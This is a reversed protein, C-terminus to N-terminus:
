AAGGLIRRVIERDSFPRRCGRIEQCTEHGKGAIVVLDRPEAEAIAGAIAAGRDVEERVAAADDLGARMQGIIAEPDEWRPNDSTLWVADAGSVAARAMQPRKGQDRNGGCGVVCILRGRCHSALAGLANGLADPTHAYDVVVAPQGSARFFEMRGAVCSLVRAREVLDRFSLGAAALLGIAATVNALSFEGFVPAEVPETGWPSSLRARLGDTHFTLRDWSLDANARGVTIIEPGHLDAALGRGFEDDVNIAALRVTPFEFLRRKAAGYEAFNAHYDLHDRTLNSFVAYDFRVDDARGQALAHSSVELCAWACGSDRLCALRKQTAVADGTTLATPALRGPEGWGLTGLCGARKGFGGLLDALHHAISTKGNTGTVGICELARSPDGYFKAALSGRRERLGDVTVVPADVGPLCREALICVAGRQVAEAAYDHGDAAAGRVAMFADGPEVSRSDEALGGLEIEPLGPDGVLERLTM